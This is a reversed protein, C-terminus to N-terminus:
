KSPDEFTHTRHGWEHYYFKVIEYDYGTENSIEKLRDVNGEDLSFLKELENLQESTLKTM